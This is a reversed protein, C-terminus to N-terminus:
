LLLEAEIALILDGRYSMDPKRRTWQRHHIVRQAGWGHRRCLTACLLVLARLQVKPYEDDPRGTNEVEIGYFNPNGPAGDKYGLTVADGEVAEGRRVKALVEHAGSGAHHTLNAAILHVAGSRALLFHCLPGKLDPRGKICVGLSPADGSLPGATHHVMVGIPDFGPFGATEWGVVPVVDLGGEKLAQDLPTLAELSM